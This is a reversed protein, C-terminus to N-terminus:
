VLCEIDLYSFNVKRKVEELVEGVGRIANAVRTIFTSVCYM